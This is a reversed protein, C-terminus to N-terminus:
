YFMEKSREGIPTYVDNRRIESNPLSQTITEDEVNPREFSGVQVTQDREQNESVLLKISTTNPFSEEIDMLHNLISTPTTQFVQALEKGEGITNPFDQLYEEVRDTYEKSYLYEKTDNDEIHTFMDFEYCYKFVRWSQLLEGMRNAQYYCTKSFEIINSFNTKDYSPITFGL